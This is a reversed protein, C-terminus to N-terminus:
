ADEGLTKFDSTLGDEWVTAVVDDVLRHVNVWKEGKPRNLTIDSGDAFDVIAELQKGTIRM